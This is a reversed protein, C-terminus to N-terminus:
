HCTEEAKKKMGFVRAVQPNAQLYARKKPQFFLADTHSIKITLGGSFTNIDSSTFSLFFTLLFGSKEINIRSNNLCLVKEARCIYIFGNKDFQQEGRM